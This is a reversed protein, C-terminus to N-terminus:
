NNIHFYERQRARQEILQTLATSFFPNRISALKVSMPFTLVLQKGRMSLLSWLANKKKRTQQAAITQFVGFFAFLAWKRGGAALWGALWGAGDGTISARLVVFHKMSKIRNRRRENGLFELFSEITKLDRNQNINRIFIVLQLGRRVRLQNEFTTILGTAKDVCFSFFVWSPLFIM